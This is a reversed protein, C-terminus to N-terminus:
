KEKQSFVMTGSLDKANNSFIFSYTDTGNIASIYFVYINPKLIVHLLFEVVKYEKNTIITDAQYIENGVPRSGDWLQITVRLHIKGPEKIKIRFTLRALNNTKSVVFKQRINDMEHAFFPSLKTGFFRV